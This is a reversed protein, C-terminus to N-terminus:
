GAGRVKDPAAEWMRGGNRGGAVADLGGWGGTDSVMGGYGGKEIVCTSVGGRWEGGRLSVEGRAGDDDGGVVGNVGDEGVSCWRCSGGRSDCGRVVVVEGRTNM